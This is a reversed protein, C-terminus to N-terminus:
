AFPDDVLMTWRPVALEAEALQDRRYVTPNSPDTDREVSVVESGLMDVDWAVQAGAAFYGCGKAAMEREPPLGYDNESRVEVTLIPAGRLFQGHTGPGVHYAAEPSFSNHNPLEVVFGTNDPYCELVEAVGVRLM